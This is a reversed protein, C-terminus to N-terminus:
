VPETPGEYKSPTVETAEKLLQTYNTSGGEGEKSEASTSEGESSTSGSSGDSSSGCASLGIAAALVLLAICLSSWTFPRM